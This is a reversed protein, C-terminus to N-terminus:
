YQQECCCEIHHNLHADHRFGHCSPTLTSLLWVRAVDLCMSLFLVWVVSCGRICGVLDLAVCEWMLLALLFYMSQRVGDPSLPLSRPSLIRYCAKVLMRWCTWCRCSVDCVCMFRPAALHSIEVFVSCCDQCGRKVVAMSM